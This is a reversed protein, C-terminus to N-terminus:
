EASKQIEKRPFQETHIQVNPADTPPPFNSLRWTVMKTVFSFFVGKKKENLFFLSFFFLPLFSPLIM